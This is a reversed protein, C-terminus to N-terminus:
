EGLSIAIPRPSEIFDQIPAARTWEEYGATGGKMPEFSCQTNLTDLEVVDIVFTKYDKM